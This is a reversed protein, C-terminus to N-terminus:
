ETERHGAPSAAIVDGYCSSSTPLDLMLLETLKGELLFHFNNVNHIEEALVEITTLYTTVHAQGYVLRAVPRLLDNRRDNLYEICMCTSVYM